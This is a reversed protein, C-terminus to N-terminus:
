PRNKSANAQEATKKREAVLQKIEEQTLPRNKEAHSQKEESIENLMRALDFKGSM